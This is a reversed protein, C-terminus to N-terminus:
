GAADSAEKVEQAILGWHTREGAIEKTIIESAVAGEDEAKCEEGESNRYVQRIVEKGGVKWTYSVPRLSEIFNLGLESDKINDKTRADSTQITGNAAWIGSWRNSSSGFQYANDTLPYLYGTNHLAIRDVLGAGQSTSFLFMGPMFGSAPTGQTQTRWQTMAQWGTGDWAQHTSTYSVDNALAITPAAATGRAKRTALQYGASTGTYVVEFRSAPQNDVVYRRGISTDTAVNFLNGDVVVNDQNVFSYPTVIEQFICNTVNVSKATSDTKVGTAGDFMAVGGTIIANGNKVYVHVGTSTSCAWLNGGTIKVCQSNGGGSLDILVSTNKAASKCGILNLNKTTGRAYYGTSYTNNNKFGDAGCNLLVVNDSGNIDFGVDYGYSFCELAQGWDVGTGFTYATGQRRWGADGDFTWSNHTTIYPWFHCGVLHNMDFVQNLYIGNTCDGSIYEVHPRENNDNYYAYQFGLVLCYGAYTDSADKPAGTGVTIAKGAFNGVEIVAEDLSSPNTLGKRFIGVGKIGAFEQSLRITYLPNLIFTSSISTWDTGDTEGLNHWPGQLIVGQKVNLDGSDILWRGGTCDVIGGGAAFVADIAKQANARDDTIGDGVCGYERLHITMLRLKQQVTNSIGGVGSQIFGVLSSGSPDALPGFVDPNDVAVTVDNGVHTATVGNGTFNISATQFTLNSGEDKIQINQGGPIMVGVLDQLRVPENPSTPAPLNLIRNSNMDLNNEMQNPEGVPNDRYLVKNQLEDEIKTFNSNILALNYTNVIDNLVLKAM